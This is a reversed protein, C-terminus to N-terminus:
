TPYDFYYPRPEALVDGYLLWKDQNPALAGFFWLQGLSLPPVKLEQFRITTQRNLHFAVVLDDSSVYKKLKNLETQLDAKPSLDAPALEKIQIPVFVRENGREYTAICDYDDREVCAVRLPVGLLTSQMGYAFLMATRGEHVHKLERTRLRFTRPDIQKGSYEREIERFKILMDRPDKYLYKLWEKPVPREM